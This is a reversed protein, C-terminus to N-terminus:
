RGPTLQRKLMRIDPNFFRCIDYGELLRSSVRESYTDRLQNMDLNTSIVTSRKRMKRENICQFLQSNVFSNNVETGLDDIILLDCGFIQEREDASRGFASDALRDFLTAAPYYIVSFGQRIVEAAICNSLFTKGTGAGGMFLLNKRGPVFDTAMDLAKRHNETMNEYPTRGTAPDRRTRDFWKMDFTGFNEKELVERINSADYLLEAELARLCRCKRGDKYGTDHCLPCTYHVELYDKEYGLGALIVRQQERLDEIQSLLRDELMEDGRLLAKVREAHDAAIASEMEAFIPSRKVVEDFAEEQRRLADARREELVSMLKKYQDSSVPM